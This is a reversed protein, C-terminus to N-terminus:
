GLYGSRGLVSIKLRLFSYATGDPGKRRYDARPFTGNKQSAFAVVDNVKPLIEQVFKRRFEKDDTVPLDKNKSLFEEWFTNYPLYIYKRDKWALFAKQRSGTQSTLWRDFGEAFKLTSLYLIFRNTVVAWEVIRHDVALINRLTDQLGKEFFGSSEDEFHDYFCAASLFPKVALSYKGRLGSQKYAESTMKEYPSMASYAPASSYRNSGVALDRSMESLWGANLKQYALDQIHYWLTADCLYSFAQKLQYFPLPVVMDQSQPLKANLIVAISSRQRIRDCQKGTLTVDKGEFAFFVIPSKQYDVAKLSNTFATATETSCPIWQVLESRFLTNKYIFDIDNIDTLVFLLKEDPRKIGSRKYSVDTTCRMCKWIIGTLMISSFLRTETNFKQFTRKFNVFLGYSYRMNSVANISQESRIWHVSNWKGKLSTLKGGKYCQRLGTRWIDRIKLTIQDLRVNNYFEQEKLIHQQVSVSLVPVSIPKYLPLIKEFTPLIGYFLEAITNIIQLIMTKFIRPSVTVDPFENLWDLITDPKQPSFIMIRPVAERRSTETAASGISGKEKIVRTIEYYFYVTDLKSRNERSVFFCFPTFRISKLFDFFFRRHIQREQLKKIYRFEDESLASQRLPENQSFFEEIEGKERALIGMIKRRDEVTPIPNDLFANLSNLVELAEAAFVDWLDSMFNDHVREFQRLIDHGIENGMQPIMMKAQPDTLKGQFYQTVSQYGAGDYTYPLLPIAHPISRYEERFAASNYYDKSGVKKDGRGVTPCVLTNIVNMTTLSDPMRNGNLAGPNHINGGAASQGRKEEILNKDM